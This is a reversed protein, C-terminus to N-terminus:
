FGFSCILCLGCTSFFLFLVFILKLQLSPIAYHMGTNICLCKMGVNVSIYDAKCYNHCMADDRFVPSEHAPLVPLVLPPVATTHVSHVLYIFRVHDASKNYTISLPQVPVICKLQM